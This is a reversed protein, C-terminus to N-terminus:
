SVKEAAIKLEPLAIEIKASKKLDQIKKVLANNREQILLGKKISEKAKEFDPPEAPRREELKIVHFGFQTKVPQSIEGPKLAFAAQEFEPVMMGKRFFGLDGGSKKSTDDASYEEVIKAFDADSALAKNRAETAKELAAKTAKPSANPPVRMLIHRARVTEPTAFSEPQADFAVRADQDTVKLGPSVEKEVFHKLRVGDTIEQTFKEWTVGHASLAPMLKEKGGQSDIFTAVDKTISETSLNVSDKAAKVLLERSIMSNLAGARLRTITDSSPQAQSVFAALEPRQLEKDIDAITITVGNFTAAVTSPTLDAVQKAEAASVQPQALSSSPLCIPACLVACLPALRATAILIKSSLNVLFSSTRRM